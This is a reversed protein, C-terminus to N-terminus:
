RIIEVVKMMIIPEQDAKRIYSDMKLRMRVAQSKGLTQYENIMNKDRIYFRFPGNDFMVELLLYGYNKFYNCDKIFGTFLADELFQNLREIEPHRFADRYERKLAGMLRDVSETSGSDKIKSLVNDRVRYYKTFAREKNIEPHKSLIGPSPMGYNSLDTKVIVKVRDNPISAPDKYLRVEAKSRAKFVTVDVCEETEQYEWLGAISGNELIEDISNSQPFNPIVIRKDPVNKIVELLGIRDKVVEDLVGLNILSTKEAKSMGSFIFDSAYEFEAELPTPPYIKDGEIEFKERRKTSRFNPMELLYGNERAVKLVEQKKKPANNLLWVIYERRNYTWMKANMYSIQSYSVSHSKNFAYKSFEVIMGWIEEPDDDYENAEWGKIFKEKFSLMIEENKKGMAKRVNEAEALTFGAAEVFLRMVDEQFVLLGSHQEGFAEKLIRAITLASGEFEYEGNKIDVWTKNLGMNLPGPRNIANIAALDEISRPKGDIAMKKPVFGAMQFVFDVEGRNITDYVAPDYVDEWDIDLGYIDHIANLAELSLLDYKIYGFKELSEGNFDLIGDENKPLAVEEQTMIVGSANISFSFVTGDLKYCVGLKRYVDDWKEDYKGTISHVVKVFEKYDPPNKAKLMEKGINSTTIRNALQFDVEYYSCLQKFLMVSSSKVVNSIRGAFKFKDKLADTLIESGLRDDGEKKTMIDLDIDPMESRSPNLFREFLLGYYLPDTKTIDLLYAVESGAASGRGPGTLLGIEKARQVILHMNEFYESFNKGGITKMEHEIRSLSEEEFETGKRKKVWGQHILDRLEKERHVLDAPKDIEIGPEVKQEIEDISDLMSEVDQPDHGASVLREKLADRSIVYYGTGHDGATESAGDDGKKKSAKKEYIMDVYLGHIAHDKEETYHGDNTAVMKIGHKKALSIMIRYTDFESLYGKEQERSDHLGHHMIEIYYDDGFEQKYTLVLEEAKDFQQTKVYYCLESGLCGSLVILGEKHKFLSETTVRQTFYIEGESYIRFLNELGKQNKALVTMHFNRKADISQLHELRDEAEKKIAPDIRKRRAVKAVEAIEVSVHKYDIAKPPALYIECGPVFKMGLKKAVSFATPFASMTGHDTICFSDTGMEKHAEAIDLVKSLGDKSYETHQHLNLSSRTKVTM